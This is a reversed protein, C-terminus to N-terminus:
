GFLAKRWGDVKRQYITGDSKIFNMGEHEGLVYLTVFKFNPLKLLAKAMAGAKYGRWYESPVTAERINFETIAQPHGVFHDSVLKSASIAKEVAYFDAKYRYDPPVYLNLAFGLRRMWERYEPQTYVWWIRALNRYTELGMPLQETLPWGMWGHQTPAYMWYGREHIKSSDWYAIVEKAFECLRLDIKQEAWAQPENEISFSLEEPVFRAVAEDIVFKQAAFALEKTCGYPMSQNLTIHLRFGWKKYRELSDVVLRRGWNSLAKGDSTILHLNAWGCRIGGFGMEQALTLERQWRDEDTWASHQVVYLRPNTAM